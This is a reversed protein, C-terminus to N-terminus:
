AVQDIRFDLFLTAAAVAVLVAIGIPLVRNDHAGRAAAGAAVPPPASATAGDAAAAPAAGARLAHLCCSGVTKGQLRVAAGSTVDQLPVSTNCLDCFLVEPVDPQM